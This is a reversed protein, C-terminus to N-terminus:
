GLRKVLFRSPKGPWPKNLNWLFTMICIIDVKSADNLPTHSYSYLQDSSSQFFIQQRWKEPTFTRRLRREVVLHDAQQLLLQVVRVVVARHGVWLCSTEILIWLIQFNLLSSVFMMALRLFLWNMTLYKQPVLHDSHFSWVFNFSM